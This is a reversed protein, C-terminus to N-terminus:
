GRQWAQIDRLRALLLDISQRAELFAGAPIGGVERIMDESQVLLRRSEELNAELQGRWSKVSVPYSDKAM